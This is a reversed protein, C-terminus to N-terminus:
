CRVLVTSDQQTLSKQSSCQADRLSLRSTGANERYLEAFILVLPEFQDSPGM